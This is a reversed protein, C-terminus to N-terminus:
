EKDFDWVWCIEDPNEADFGTYFGIRKYLNYYTTNIARPEPLDPSAQMTLNIAPNLSIIKSVAKTATLWEGLADQAAWPGWPVNTADDFPLAITQWRGSNYSYEKEILRWATGADGAFDASERIPPNRLAVMLNQDVDFKVEFIIGNFQGYDYGEPLEGYLDCMRLDLSSGWSVKMVTVPNGDEDADEAETITMHEQGYTNQYGPEIKWDGIVGLGDPTGTVPEEELTGTTCGIILSVALSLVLITILLTLSKKM